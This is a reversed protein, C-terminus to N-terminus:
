KLAGLKIVDAFIKKPFLIVNVPEPSYCISMHKQPGANLGRCSGHDPLGPRLRPARRPTTISECQPM